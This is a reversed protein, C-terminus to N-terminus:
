SARTVLYGVSYTTNSQSAAPANSACIEFYGNALVVYLGLAATAANMPTLNVTLNQGRSQSYTVRALAGAAPTAGTGFTLTGRYDGCDNVAVPAPPTTGAQVGASLVANAVKNSFQLDSTLRRNGKNAVALDFDTGSLSGFYGDPTIFRAGTNMAVPSVSQPEFDAQIIGLNGVQTAAEFSFQTDAGSMVPATTEPYLSVKNLRNVQPRILTILNLYGAAGSARGKLQIGHATGRQYLASFIHNAVLNGYNGGYSDCEVLFGGGGYSRLFEWQNHLQNLVNFGYHNGDVGFVHVNRWISQILGHEGGAMYSAGPRAVIGHGTNVHRIADAFRIGFDDLHVSKAVAPINIVNTAAATQLIVSGKLFPAVAPSDFNIGESLARNVTWVGFGKISLNKNGTNLEASIRYTKPGLMVIGADPCNDIAAQIAATDDTVGDGVAGFHEPTYVRGRGILRLLDQADLSSPDVSQLATM